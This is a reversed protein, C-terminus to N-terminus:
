SNRLREATPDDMSRKLKRLHLKLEQLKNAHDSEAALDHQEWPDNGLDFLRYRDARPYHILKWNGVRIMRQHERLYAGYIADYQQDREGRLLPLLSRFDVFDPVSAGAWELATPFFDQIYVPTEIVQGEPLEPGVVILPTKMSHEYMNQKGMLGHQGCALGHDGVLVIYTNDAQGSEKLADLIRGIQEDMHTILAYYEQRHLRVAEETRPWPALREDRLSKGAGIAQMEPYEPLFNEPVSIEDRPYMEVFERPAQRPIMLRM